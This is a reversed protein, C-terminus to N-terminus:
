MLWSYNRTMESNATPHGGLAGEWDNWDDVAEDDADSGAPILIANNDADVGAPSGFNIATIASSSSMHRPQPAKMSQGNALQAAQYYQELNVSADWSVPETESEQANSSNSTLGPLSQYTSDGSHSVTQTLNIQSSPLPLDAPSFIPPWDVGTFNPSATANISLGLFDRSSMNAAQESWYSSLANYDVADMSGLSSKYDDTRSSFHKDFDFSFADSGSGDEGFDFSEESNTRSITPPSITRSNQPIWMDDASRPLSDLLDMEDETKAFASIGHLTHPRPIKYPVGSTHALNNNRHCPKHHGNAFVTLKGESTSTALQPKSKVPQTPRKLSREM